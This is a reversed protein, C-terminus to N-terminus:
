VPQQDETETEPAPAPAPAPVPEDTPEVVPAYESEITDRMVLISISHLIGTEIVVALTTPDTDAKIASTAAFCDLQQGKHIVKFSRQKDNVSQLVSAEDLFEVMITRALRVYKKFM